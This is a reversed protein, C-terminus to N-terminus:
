QAYLSFELLPHLFSISHSNLWRRYVTLEVTKEPVKFYQTQTHRMSASHTHTDADLTSLQLAQTPNDFLDLDPTL